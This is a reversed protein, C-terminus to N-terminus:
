IEGICKQDKLRIICGTLTENLTRFVNNKSFGQCLKNEIKLIYKSLLESYKKRKNEIM